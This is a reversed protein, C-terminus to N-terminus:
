ESCQANQILSKSNLNDVTCFDSNKESYAIVSWDILISSATVKACLLIAFYETESKIWVRLADRANQSNEIAKELFGQLIWLIKTANSWLKPEYDVFGILHLKTDDSMLECWRWQITNTEGRAERERALNQKM